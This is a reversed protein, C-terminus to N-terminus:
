AALTRGMVLADSGFRQRIRDMAAVLRDQKEAANRESSFLFRQAPPYTLRDCVLTMRRLRIRRVWARALAM